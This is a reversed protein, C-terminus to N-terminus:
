NAGKERLLDHVKQVFEDPRFPKQLFATGGELVGHHSIVEDSYGSMYLVKIERRMAQVTEALERGSMKPMVIDTVLADIPGPHHRAIKLAQEGSGAELVHYGDRKLIATALGRVADEDEVLLVTEHMDRRTSQKPTEAMQVEEDICPLFIRISTGKSVTSELSLYGGAQNVIGYVTALGLGTGKGVEKTTFFPEFV